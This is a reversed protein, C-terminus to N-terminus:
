DEELAVQNKGNKKARYLAKDAREFLTDITDNDRLYSIGFSATLHGITSFSFESITELLSQSRKVAETVDIDTLLLAFEEGGWRAFIDSQRIQHKILQSFEQLIVDGVQHGYTDNIRKFDDLDLIVLTSAIKSKVIEELEINFYSKRHAGTLTDYKVKESLSTVETMTFLQHGNEIRTAHLIFTDSGIPLYSEQNNLASYLDDYSTLIKNFLKYIYLQKSQAEKIDTLKFYDLFKQNVFKISDSSTVFILANQNDLIKSLTNYLLTSENNYQLLKQQSLTTATINQLLVIATNEDCYEISINVYYDNKFVAELTYLCYRKTFIEKVEEESGLLEPLCEVIDDSKQPISGLYKAIGESSQQVRMKTDILIYEFINKSLIANLIIQIERM